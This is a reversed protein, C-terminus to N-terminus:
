RSSRGPTPASSRRSPRPGTAPTCGGSRAIRKTPRRSSSCNRTSSCWRSRGSTWRSSARVTVRCSSAAWITPSRSAAAPPVRDAAAAPSVRADVLAPFFEQRLREADVAFAMLSTLRDRAPSAWRLQAQIYHPRGHLTDPFAVIARRLAPCRSCSPCCGSRFRSTKTSAAPPRATRRRAPATSCWGAVASGTRRRDRGVVRLVRRHVSEGRPKRHAGARHLRHRAAGHTGAARRAARQHAPAEAVRGRDQRHRGRHRQEAPAAGGGLNSGSRHALPVPLLLPGRGSDRRGRGTGGGPAPWPRLLFYGLPDPRTGGSM